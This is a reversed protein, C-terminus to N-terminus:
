DREGIEGMGRGVEGRTVLEGHNFTRKKTQGERKKEGKNM